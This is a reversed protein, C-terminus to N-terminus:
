RVTSATRGPRAAPAPCTRRRARVIQQDLAVIVRLQQVVNQAVVDKGLDVDGPAVGQLTQHRADVLVGEEGEHVRGVVQAQAGHQDLLHGEVDRDRAVEGVLVAALGADLLDLHCPIAVAATELVDQRAGAALDRASSRAPSEGACGSSSRPACTPPSGGAGRQLLAVREVRVVDRRAQLAHAVLAQQRHRQRRECGLRHELEQELIGHDVAADLPQDGDARELGRRAVVQPAM